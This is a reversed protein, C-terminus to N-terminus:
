TISLRKSRVAYSTRPDTNTINLSLSIGSFTIPRKNEDEEREVRRLAVVLIVRQPFPRRLMWRAVSWDM